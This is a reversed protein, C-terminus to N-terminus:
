SGPRPMGHMPLEKVKKGPMDIKRHPKAATPLIDSLDPMANAIVRM